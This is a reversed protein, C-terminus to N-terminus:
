ILESNTVYGVETRNSIYRLVRELRKWDTNKEIEWSHGWLHFVGGNELTKDFLVIALEDWNFYSKLFSKFGVAKLIKLADLWHRFSHVTTPLSFKDIGLDTKYRDVTRSLIFGNEKLVQKHGESYNGFPFCFSTVKKGIIKELYEKSGVVEKKVENINLETLHPHTMTHAGIEFDQGIIKIQESTMLDGKKFEANKPSIYFTGNIRYKKLIEALKLDLVHGDDWSTTVLVKKM